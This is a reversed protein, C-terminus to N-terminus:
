RCVSSGIRMLSRIVRDCSWCCGMCVNDAAKGALHRHLIREAGGQTVDRVRKDAEANRQQSSIMRAAGSEFWIRQFFLLSVVPTWSWADDDCRRWCTSTQEKRWEKYRKYMQGFRRARRPFGDDDDRQTVATTQRYVM